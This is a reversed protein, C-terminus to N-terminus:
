QVASNWAELRRLMRQVHSGPWFLRACVPCAMFPGPLNRSREPVRQREEETASRLTANDILCRTFPAITWNLHLAQTIASAQEDLDNGVVLVTGIAGQARAFLARDCSILIRKEVRCVAILEVDSIAQDAVLTDHGAARLWRTLRALM